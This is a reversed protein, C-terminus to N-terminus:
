QKIFKTRDSQGTKAIVLVTYLGCPLSQINIIKSSGSTNNEVFVLSGTANYLMIKDGTGIGSITVLHEAPVPFVRLMKQDGCNGKARLIKSYTVTGDLDQMRLRFYKEPLPTNHTYTYQNNSAGKGPITVVPTFLKGDSSKEITYGKFRIEDESTWKCEVYCQNNYIASFGVLNLPLAQAWTITYAADTQDQQDAIDITSYRFTTTTTGETTTAGPQISLQNAVYSSIVQNQGVTAGNYILDFGNTPLNTIILKKGAWSSQTPQDAEDSGQLPNSGLNLSAPMGPENLSVAYTEPFACASQADFLGSNASTGVTQPVGTIIPVGSADVAENLRGNADVDTYKFTGGGELADPCGDGDSDNDKDNPTGDNDTDPRCTGSVFFFIGDDSTVSGTYRSMQIVIRTAQLLTTEGFRVRYADYDQGSSGALCTVDYSNITPAPLTLSPSVGTRRYTTACWDATSIPQNLADYATLQFTTYEPDGLYINFDYLAGPTLTLTINGISTNNPPYTGFAMTRSLVAAADSIDARLITQYYGNITGSATTFSRLTTSTPNCQFGVATGCGLSASFPTTQFSGLQAAAWNISGRGNEDLDPIGDNDDDLDLADAVGDGDNDGAPFTCQADINFFFLVSLLFTFIVKM